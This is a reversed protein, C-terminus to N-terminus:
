GGCLLPHRRSAFRRFLRKGEPRDKLSVNVGSVGNDTIVQDLTFGAKEAQTAQHEVTQEL